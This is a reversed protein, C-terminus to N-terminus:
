IRRRAAAMSAFLAGAALLLTSPEPIAMAEGIQRVNGILSGDFEANRYEGGWGGLLSGFISLSPPGGFDMFAIGALLNDQLDISPFEPFLDDDTATFTTGDVTVSFANLTGTPGIPNAAGAPTFTGNCVFAPCDAGAIDFSGFASQGDLPGSIFDLAFNFRVVAAQASGALLGMSLVLLGAGTRLSKAASARTFFHTADTSPRMAVASTIAAFPRALTNRLSM